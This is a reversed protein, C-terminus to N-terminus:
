PLLRAAERVCEGRELAEVMFHAVDARSLKPVPRWTTIADGSRYRGTLPGDTLKPPRVITWDLGSARVLAEKAEHDAIEHKLAIPTIFRLVFGVAARSERVGIFSMYILRRVQHKEMAQIIHGVGAIVKEDHELRRGVGLTSVVADHGATVADVAEADAVNGQVITLDPDSVGLMLPQRVFATVTHRRALAQRVVEHGTLGSAGFVLLRVIL